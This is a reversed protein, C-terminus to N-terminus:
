AAPTPSPAKHLVIHGHRNSFALDTGRLRNALEGISLNELLVVQYHNARPFERAVRRRLVRIEALDYIEATM